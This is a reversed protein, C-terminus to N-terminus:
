LLGESVIEGWKPPHQHDFIYTELLSYDIKHVYKIFSVLSRAAEVYVMHRSRINKQRDIKVGM